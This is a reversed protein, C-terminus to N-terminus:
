ALAWTRKASFAQANRAARAKIADFQAKSTARAYEDRAIKRTRNTDTVKIMTDAFKTM